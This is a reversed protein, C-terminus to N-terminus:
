GDDVWRFTTSYRWVTSGIWQQEAENDGDFPDAILGARLLDTHVVGPVVAEVDALHLGDPTPGQVASLTWGDHISTFTSPFFPM